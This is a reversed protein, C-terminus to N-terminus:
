TPPPRASRKGGRFTRGHSNMAEPNSVVLMRSNLV